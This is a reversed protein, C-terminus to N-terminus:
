QRSLKILDVISTVVSADMFDAHQKTKMLYNAHVFGPDCNPWFTEDNNMDVAKMQAADCGYSMALSTQDVLAEPSVITKTSDNPDPKLNAASNLLAIKAACAPKAAGSMLIIGKVRDAIQANCGFRSAYLSGWSHGGVWMARIDYAAFNTYVWAIVDYLYPEDQSMDGNGWQDVVPKPTAVILNHSSVYKYASFYGWQYFRRNDPTTGHLNLIFTMPAGEHKDCPYDIIVDSDRPTSFALGRGATRAGDDILRTARGTM